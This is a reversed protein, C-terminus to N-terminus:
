ATLATPVTLAQHLIKNVEDARTMVLMHGAGRLLHTPQTYRAPLVEDRTGHIHCLPQPIQDNEWSLIAEMSWRILRADSERIITCLLKKDYSTERTFLRKATACTKLLSIPILKHLRLRAATRFYGPLHASVPISSLLVTMVPSYRKAIETALMGGFSLGVLAFPENVNIGAALRQAYSPLSEDPLPPIWELYVKEYGDPLQIRHFVRSDAAMGSIFYVKMFNRTQTTCCGHAYLILLPQWIFYIAKLEDKTIAGGKLAEKGFV